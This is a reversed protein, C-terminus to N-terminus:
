LQNTMVVGQEEEEKEATVVTLKSVQQLISSHNWVIHATSGPM